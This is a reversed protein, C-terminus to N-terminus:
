EDKVIFSLTRKNTKDRRWSFFSYESCKSCIDVDFFNEQPMGKEILSSKIFSIIDLYLCNEKQIIFRSFPKVTLFDKGIRYCCKRLGVGAIAYSSSFDIDLNNLIGKKAGKWGIHVLGIQKKMNDIIFLPLCDATKIILILNKKQTILGDATHMGERDTFVIKSSHLQKLHTYYINKREFVRKIDKEITIGEIYPKTFGLTVSFDTKIGKIFYAYNNEILNM